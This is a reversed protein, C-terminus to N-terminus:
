GGVESEGDPGRACVWWRPQVLVVGCKRGKSRVGRPQDCVRRVKLEQGRGQGIINEGVAFHALFQM